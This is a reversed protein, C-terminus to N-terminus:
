RRCPCEAIGTPRYGEVAEDAWFDVSVDISGPRWEFPETFDIEPANEKQRTFMIEFRGARSACRSADASVTASWTRVMTEPHTDSFRVNGITLSPKCIPTPLANSAGAIALLVVACAVSRQSPHVSFLASIISSM